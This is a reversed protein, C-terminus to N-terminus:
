DNTKYVDTSPKFESRFRHTEDVVGALAVKYTSANDQLSRYITPADVYTKNAQTSGNSEANSHGGIEDETLFPGSTGRKRKRGTRKPVTVKLLLNNTRVPTSLLRKAFPDDPRLSVSILKKLEDDGEANTTTEL